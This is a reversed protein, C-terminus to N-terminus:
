LLTVILGGMTLGPLSCFEGGFLSAWARGLLIGLFVAQWPPVFRYAACLGVIILVGPVHSRTLRLSAIVCVLLAFACTKINARCPSRTFSTVWLTGVSDGGGTATRDRPQDWYTQHTSSSHIKGYKREISNMM